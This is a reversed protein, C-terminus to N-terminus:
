IELKDDVTVLSDYVNYQVLRDVFLNSKFPDLNAIDSALGVTLTGGRVPTEGATVAAGPTATAAAAAPSGTAPQERGEDEDDSGCAVIALSLVVLLLARLVLRYSM